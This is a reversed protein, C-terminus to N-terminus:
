DSPMLVNLTTFLWIEGNGGIASYMLALIENCDLEICVKNKHKEACDHHDTTEEM